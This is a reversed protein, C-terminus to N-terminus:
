RKYSRGKQKNELSVLVLPQSASATVRMSHTEILVADKSLATAEVLLKVRQEAKARTGIGYFLKRLKGAGAKQASALNPHKLLFAVIFDAYIKAADLKMVEPFYSKLVAKLENCHATRQDVLRRRDQAMTALKRTLPQDHRLPRLKMIYHSLYQCLLMADGPDNKGGGHAFAKRCAALAAPNIPYITIGDCDLLASILPGKTTEIAVAFEREPHQQRLQKFWQQIQCADQQLTGASQSEQTQAHWAHTQDAWDIGVIVPTQTVIPNM